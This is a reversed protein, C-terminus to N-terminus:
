IGRGLMGHVVLGLCADSLIAPPLVLGWPRGRGGLGLVVTLAGVTWRALLALLGIPNAFANPMGILM